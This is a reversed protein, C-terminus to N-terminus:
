CMWTQIETEILFITQPLYFDFGRKTIEFIRTKGM